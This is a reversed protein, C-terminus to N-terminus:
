DDTKAALQFAAPREVVQVDVGDAVLKHVANVVAGASAKATGSGENAADIAKCLQSTRLPQGPHAELVDRIAGRLTGKSRRPKGGTPAKAACEPGSAM